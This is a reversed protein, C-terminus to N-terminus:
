RTGSEKASRRVASMVCIAAFEVALILAILPLWQTAFLFASAILQFDLHYAYADGDRPGTLASHIRAAEVVIAVLCGALATLIMIKRTTM